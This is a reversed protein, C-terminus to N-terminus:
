SLFLEAELKRRYVLGARVVPPRGAFKWKHFEAAVEEKPDSRNLKKLLTSIQLNGAGANFVFDILAAEMGPTMPVKVLGRVRKQAYRLDQRYNEWAEAQTIPPWTSLPLKTDKSLLRGLGQTPYGESDRFPYCLGDKGVGHLGDFRPNKAFDFALDLASEGTASAVVAPASNRLAPPEPKPVPLPGEYSQRPPPLPSASTAEPSPPALTALARTLAETSGTEAGGLPRRSSGGFCM